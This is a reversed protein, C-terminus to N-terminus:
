FIKVIMFVFSFITRVTGTPFTAPIEFTVNAGSKIIDQTVQINDAVVYSYPLSTSTLELRLSFTINLTLFFLFFNPEIKGQYQFSLVEWFLHPLWLEELTGHRLIPPPLFHVQLLFKDSLFYYLLQIKSLVQQPTLSQSFKPILFQSLTTLMMLTQEM